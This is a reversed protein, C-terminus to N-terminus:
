PSQCPSPPTRQRAAATSTTQLLLLVTAPLAADVTSNGTNSPHSSIGSVTELVKCLVTGLVQMHNIKITRRGPSEFIVPPHYVQSLAALQSVLAHLSSWVELTYADRCGLDYLQRGVQVWQEIWPPRQCAGEM